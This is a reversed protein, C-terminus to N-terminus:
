AVVAGLEKMVASRTAVLGKEFVLPNWKDANALCDPCHEAPRLTWYCLWQTDTEIIKWYCKCNTLCKTRGDGPQQPLDPMGRAAQNGREYAQSSAEVYLRSRMAIQKESYNGNKVQEAFNQLREYQFRLRNGIYGWDSQTMANRGGRALMYENIFANKTQERMALTWQQVNIDGSALDAALQNVMPKKKAIYEDRLQLRKGESVFTGARQGLEEAGEQTLRYRRARGDWTWLTM